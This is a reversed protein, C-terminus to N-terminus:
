ERTLITKGQCEMRSRRSVGVEAMVQLDCVEANREKSGAGDDGLTWVHLLGPAARFRWKIRAQDWRGEM